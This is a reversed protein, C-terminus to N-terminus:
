AMEFHDKSPRVQRDFGAETVGFFQATWFGARKLLWKIAGPLYRLAPQLAPERQERDRRNGGACVSGPVDGFRVGGEVYWPRSTSLVGPLEGKVNM